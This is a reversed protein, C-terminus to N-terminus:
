TAVYMYESYATHMSYMLKIHAQTYKHKHMYGYMFAHMIEHMHLHLM